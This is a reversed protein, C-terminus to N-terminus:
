EECLCFLHGVPDAFVVFSGEPSPQVEHKRAGRALAIVAANEVSDVYFDFHIQQPVDGNPWEPARYHDIQQCSISFIQPAGEPPLVDVWEPEQEDYDIQWGLLEAYFKALALADPCDLTVVFSKVDIYGTM